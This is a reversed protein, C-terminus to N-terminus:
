LCAPCNPGSFPQQQANLNVAAPFSVQPGSVPVRAGVGPVAAGSTDTAWEIAVCDLRTVADSLLCVAVTDSRLVVRADFGPYILSYGYRFDATTGQAEGTSGYIALAYVDPATPTQCAQLRGTMYLYYTESTASPIRGIFAGDYFGTTGSCPMWRHTTGPGRAAAVPGASVPLALLGVLLAILM